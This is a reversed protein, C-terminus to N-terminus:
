LYPQEGSQNDLILAALKSNADWLIRNNISGDNKKENDYKDEVNGVQNTIIPTEEYRLEDIKKRMNIIM